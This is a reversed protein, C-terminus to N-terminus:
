DLFYFSVIKPLGTGLVYHLNLFYYSTGEDM